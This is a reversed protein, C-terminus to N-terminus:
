IAIITPGRNGGAKRMGGKADKKPKLDQPKKEKKKKKTKDRM